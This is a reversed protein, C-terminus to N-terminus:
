DTMSPVSAGSAGRGFARGHRGPGRPTSSSVPASSANPRRRRGAAWAGSPLGGVVLLIAIGVFWGIPSGTRPLEVVVGLVTPTVSLPVIAAPVVVAVFTVDNDEVVRNAEDVASVIAENQADGGAAVQYTCTFSKGVALSSGVGQACSSAFASYLSDSLGTITLPVEGNNTVVLTYTLNGLTHVILADGVTAHDGGNVKKDLDIGNPKAANTFAVTEGDPDIVVSATRGSTDGAGINYTTTWWASMAPDTETVVCTAELPIDDFTMPDDGAM